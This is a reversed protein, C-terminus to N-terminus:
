RGGDRPEGAGPDAAPPPASVAPEPEPAAGAATSLQVPVVTAVKWGSTAMAVTAEVASGDSYAVEFTPAVPDPRLPGRVQAVTAAPVNRIDTLRYQDALEPMVDPTLRALWQDRDDQPAAFNAAFRAVTHRAAEPSFDPPPPLDAPDPQYEGLAHGEHDHASAIATGTDTAAPPAPAQQAPTPNGYHQWCLGAIAVAAVVMAIRARSSLRQWRWRLQALRHKM